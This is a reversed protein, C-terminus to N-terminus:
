SVKATAVELKLRAVHYRISINLSLIGSPFILRSNEICMTNDISAAPLICPEDQTDHMHPYRKRLAPKNRQTSVAWQM